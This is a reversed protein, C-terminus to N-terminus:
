TNGPWLTIPWPCHPQLFKADAFTPVFVFLDGSSFNSLDLDGLHRWERETSWDIAPEDGAESLEGSSQFFPREDAPMNLWTQETGYTVPRTGIRELLERRICIGYPEFDWRARHTRFCRLGPLEDLPTATFSVVPFRGRITRDSGILVQQRVIRLLTMLASHHGEPRADLVSDLYDDLGQRPWPGPCSRTTHILFRDGLLRPYSDFTVIGTSRADPSSTRDVWPRCAEATPTWLSAGSNLLDERVGAPQLEPLDVLLVGGRGSQLRDLLLRHINGQKRVGLVLVEGALKILQQDRNSPDGDATLDPLQDTVIQLRQAGRSVFDAGATNRSVLLTQHQERIRRLCARLGSLWAAEPTILRPSRSMVIAVTPTESM